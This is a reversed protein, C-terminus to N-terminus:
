KRVAFYGFWKNKFLIYNLNNFFNNLISFSKFFILRCLSYIRYAVIDLKHRMLDIKGIRNNKGFDVFKRDKLPLWVAM